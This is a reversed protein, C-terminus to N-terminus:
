SDKFLQTKKILDLLEDDKCLKEPDVNHRLSGSFLSADQPIISISHRLENLPVNSIDREGIKICGEDLEV